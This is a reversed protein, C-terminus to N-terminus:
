NECEKKKLTMEISGILTEKEILKRHLENIEREQVM